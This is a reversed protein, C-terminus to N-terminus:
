LPLFPRKQEILSGCRNGIQQSFIMGSLDDAAAAEISNL